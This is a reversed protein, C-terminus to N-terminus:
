ERWGGVVLNSEYGSFTWIKVWWTASAVRLLFFPYKRKKQWEIGIVVAKLGSIWFFIYKINLSIRFFDWIRTFLIEPMKIELMDGRRVLDETLGMVLLAAGCYLMYIIQRCISDYKRALKVENKNSQRMQKNTAQIVHMAHTARLQRSNCKLSKYHNSAINHGQPM